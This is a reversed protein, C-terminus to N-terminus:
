EDTWPGGPRSVGVGLLTYITPIREALGNWINSGNRAMAGDTGRRLKPRNWSSHCGPSCNSKIRTDNAFDSLVTTTTEDHAEDRHKRNM